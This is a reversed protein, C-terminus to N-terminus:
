SGDSGIALYSQRALGPDPLARTHYRQKVLLVQLEVRKGDIDVLVICSVNTKGSVTESQRYSGYTDM